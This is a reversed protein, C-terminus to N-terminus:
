LIFITLCQEMMNNGDIGVGRRLVEMVGQMRRVSVASV